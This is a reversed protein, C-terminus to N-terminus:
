RTVRDGPALEPREDLFGGLMEVDDHDGDPSMPVGAACTAICRKRRLTRTSVGPRDVM